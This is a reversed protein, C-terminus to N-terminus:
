ADEIAFPRAHQHALGPLEHVLSRGFVLRARPGDDGEMAHPRFSLEVVLASSQEIQEASAPREFLLRSTEIQTGPPPFLWHRGLDSTARCRCHDKSQESV